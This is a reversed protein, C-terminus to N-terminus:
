LHKEPYSDTELKTLIDGRPTSPLDLDIEWAGGFVPMGSFIQGIMGGNFRVDSVHADVGAVKAVKPVTLPYGVRIGEGSITVTNSAPGLTQIISEGSPENFMKSFDAGADDFQTAKGAESNSESRPLHKVQQAKKRGRVRQKYYIHSANKDPLTTADEAIQPPIFPVLNYALSNITAPAVTSDDCWFIMLDDSPRNGLKRYGRASQALAAMSTSWTTWNPKDRTVPRFLGSQEFVKKLADVGVFKWTFDFNFVRGYIEETFSYSLPIRFSTRQQKTAGPGKSPYPLKTGSRFYRESVVKTYALYSWHRPVGPAIQITGSMRNNVTALNPMAGSVTHSIQMNVMYPYFPNDSEIETDKIVYNMRRKDPALSRNASRKFGPIPLSKKFILDWIGDASYQIRSGTSSGTAGSRAGVRFGRIEYYGNIIRETAGGETLNWNMSYNHELLENVKSSRDVGCCNPITVEVTWTIFAARNSGCPKWSLLRPFPGFTPDLKFTAVATGTYPDTFSSTNVVFSRGFGQGVFIFSGGAKELKCRIDDMNIDINQGATSLPADDPIVLAKITISYKTYKIYRGSTDPVPTAQVEADFPAQFTYGNYYVTGTNGLLRAM